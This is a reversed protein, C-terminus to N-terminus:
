RGKEPALWDASRDTTPYTKANSLREKLAQNKPSLPLSIPDPIMPVIPLLEIQKGAHAKPSKRTARDKKMLNVIAPPTQKLLVELEPITIKHKYMLAELAVLAPNVSVTKVKAKVAEECVREITRRSVGVAVGLMEKSINFHRCITAIAAQQTGTLVKVAM